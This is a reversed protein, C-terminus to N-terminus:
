SLTFWKHKFNKNIYLIYAFALVHYKFTHFIIYYLINCLKFFLNQIKFGPLLCLHHAPPPPNADLPPHVPQNM